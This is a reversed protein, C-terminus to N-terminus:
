ARLPVAASSDGIELRFPLTITPYSASRSEIREILKVVSIGGIERFPEVMTTIPFGEIRVLSSAFTVISMDKPVQMNLHDLARLIAPLGYSSHYDIIGTPRDKDSLWPLLKEPHRPRRNFEPWLGSDGLILRPKLGAEDMAERYGEYRHRESYHSNKAAWGAADLTLFTFAIRTHGLGILHRTADRGAQHDDPRVCNSEVEANILISPVGSREILNMIGTPPPYLYNILFGDVMAEALIRPIVQESLLAQEDIWNVTLHFNRRLIEEQIGRMLPEPMYGRSPTSCYLLGITNFRGSRAARAMANPRYGLKRVVESVRQITKASYRRERGSIIHTVTTLSLGAERAM